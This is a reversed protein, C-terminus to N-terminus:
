VAIPAKIAPHHEYGLLEFDEYKYEFISDPKRKIVLLPKEFPARDIQQHIQDWHNVYLHCDGGTWIFDGVSLDCQQAVMHTLLSYSAINFPVGLFVDASRQYLQCSLEGDRVYFQFMVHCPPLAMDDLDSVNWSSVIHRRSGPDKKIGEIVNKLQNIGTTFWEEEKENHWNVWQKGYIPGLEGNKDAWNDWIHVGNDNLYKINTSGKLFWLLEHVVSKFHLKKTTVAPFGTRLNFRMQYGFTSVSGIGTRDLIYTGNHLIHEIFDLYVHM